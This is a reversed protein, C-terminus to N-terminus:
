YCALFLATPLLESFKPQFTYTAIQDLLFVHFSSFATVNIIIANYSLCSINRYKQPAKGSASVTYRRPISPHVIGKVM